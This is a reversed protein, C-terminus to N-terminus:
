NLPKFVHFLLYVEAQLYCMWLNGYSLHSLYISNCDLWKLTLFPYKEHFLIFYWNFRKSKIKLYICVNEHSCGGLVVILPELHGKVRLWIKISNQQCKALGLLSIETDRSRRAAMSQSTPNHPGQDGQVDEHPTPLVSLLRWTNTGGLFPPVGHGSRLCRRPHKPFLAIHLVTFPSIVAKMSKQDCM